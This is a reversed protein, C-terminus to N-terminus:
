TSTPEFGTAIVQVESIAGEELLSNRSMRAFELTQIWESVRIHCSLFMSDFTGYLYTSVICRLWKALEALHNLIRKRILHNQIGIGKSKSLSWIHDRSQALLKKVNLCVISHPNVRFRTRSMISVYLWICRQLTSESQFEYKVHYWYVILHVTCIFVWLPGCDNPWNPHITSHEKAFQFITPEFWTATVEVESWARAELLSNWSMWLSQITHIWESVWAHCLVLMYDFLCYLYSRVVCSLWKALKPLHNFTRKHGLNNRTRIGNSDNLCWIHCRSQAQPRKVNLYVISHQNVTFRTGSM